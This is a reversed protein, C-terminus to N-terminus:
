GRRREQRERLLARGTRAQKDTTPRNVGAPDLCAAREPQGVDLDSQQLAMVVEPHNVVCPRMHANFTDLNFRGNCIGCVLIVCAKCACDPRHIATALGASVGAVAAPLGITTSYSGDQHVTRLIENM